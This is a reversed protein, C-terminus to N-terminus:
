RSGGAAMDGSQMPSGRMPPMGGGQADMYPRPPVIHHKPKPWFYWLSLLILLVLGFQSLNQYEEDPTRISEEISHSLSDVSPIPIRVPLDPSYPPSSELSSRRKDRVTDIAKGIEELFINGTTLKGSDDIRTRNFAFYSGILSVTFLILLITIYLRDEQEETALELLRRRHDRLAWALAVALIFAAVLFAMNSQLSFKLAFSPTEEPYLRSM